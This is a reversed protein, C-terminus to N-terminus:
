VEKNKISKLRTRIDKVVAVAGVAFILAFLLFLLARDGFDGGQDIVIVLIVAAPVFGMIMFAAGELLNRMNGACLLLYATKNLASLPAIGIAAVVIGIIFFMFMEFNLKDLAHFDANIVACILGAATLCIGTIIVIFRKSM